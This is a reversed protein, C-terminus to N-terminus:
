VSMGGEAQVLPNWHGHYILGSIFHATAPCDDTDIERLLGDRTFEGADLFSRSNWGEDTDMYPVYMESFSGEYMVSRLRSGDQYSVLNLVPGVRSDLRLRFHWNQWIIEGKDIKFSPGLPQTVM